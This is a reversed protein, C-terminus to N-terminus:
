LGRVLPVLARPDLSRSKEQIAPLYRAQLERGQGLLENFLERLQVAGLQRGGAYYRRAAHGLAYTTAFSMASSAAQGALARGLGGAVRGFLGRALRTVFQELVQSTLGVGATALFEKLHGRDLNHGYRKGIGYVLKMQLPVIAMTALSDPLLELAGALLAHNLITRDLEADSTGAPPPAAGSADTLPTLALADARERHAAATQSDLGLAARLEELFREEAPNCADDAECLCVALEYALLRTERTSLAQAAQPLTVRGLLVDQLLGSLMEKGEPFGAAIRRIEAHERNSKEGDALTALLCITLIAKQEPENM